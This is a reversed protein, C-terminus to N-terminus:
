AKINDPGLLQDLAYQDDIYEGMKRLDEKFTEIERNSKLM